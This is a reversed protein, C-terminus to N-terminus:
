GAGHAGHKASEPVHRLRIGPLDVWELSPGQETPVPSLRPVTCTFAIYTGYGGVKGEWNRRAAASRV